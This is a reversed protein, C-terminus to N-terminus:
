TSDGRHIEHLRRAMERGVVAISHNREIDIAAQRGLRPGLTPDDVLSRMAAAATHIDPEAWDLGPTYHHRPPADVRVLEYPVPLSNEATLYDAPGSWNTVIAPRGQAMAEAPGLGFGEARPLSVFADCATVLATMEADSFSEVLIIVDPGFTPDAAFVDRQVEAPPNHDGALLKIVFVARSQGHPFAERFAHMAGIPNKREFSSSMAAVTLFTYRDTPIDFRRLDMPPPPPDVQRVPHPILTVPTTTGREYAGRVFESSAWIEDVQGAATRFASPIATQEWIWNGIVYRDATSRAPLSWMDFFLPQALIITIAVDSIEAFELRAHRRYVEPGLLHVHVPVGASELAETYLRTTMAMSNTGALGVLNVGFPRARFGRRHTVEIRAHEIRRFGRRAERRAKAVARQLNDVM